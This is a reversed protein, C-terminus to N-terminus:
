LSPRLGAPGGYFCFDCLESRRLQLHELPFPLTNFTLVGNDNVVSGVGPGDLIHPPVNACPQDTRHLKSHRRFDREGQFTWEAAEEDFSVQLTSLTHYWRVYAQPPLPGRITLTLSDNLVDTAQAGLARYVRVGVGLEPQGPGATDPVLTFTERGAAVGDDSILVQGTNDLVTWRIHLRPDDLEVGLPLRVQYVLRQRRYNRPISTLGILAGPLPEPRVSIGIYLGLATIEFDAIEIRIVPGGARLPKLRQVRPAASGTRANAIDAEFNQATNRAMDFVILPIIPNVAIALISVIVVWTAPDVDVNVNSTTLGLARYVRPNVSITKDAVACHPRAVFRAGPIWATLVPTLDFSINASGETNSARAAVHFRGAQATINLEDLSAGSEAVQEGVQTQVQQLFVPVATASVVAALSNGRAFDTLESATGATVVRQGTVDVTDIDFGLLLASGTVRYQATMDKVAALLGDGLFNIDIFPFIVLRASIAFRVAAGLRDRFSNSRLYEDASPSFSGGSIVRFAWKTAVVQTEVDDFDLELQSGAVGLHPSIRVTLSAAVGRNEALDAMTVSLFGWVAFEVLLRGERCDIRPPALFMDIGVDPASTGPVAPPLDAKLTRPFQDAAYAVLIADNFLQERLTLAVAFGADDAM